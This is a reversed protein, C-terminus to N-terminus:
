LKGTIEYYLVKAHGGETLDFSHVKSYAHATLISNVEKELEPSHTEIVIKPSHKKIFETGGRLVDVEAGEVDIKLLVNDDKPVISSLSDLNIVDIEVEEYHSHTPTDSTIISNTVSEAIRLKAKGCTQMLGKPIVTLKSYGALNNKLTEVNKLEPEIAIINCNKKLYNLAFFGTNAGCDVLTTPGTPEFSPVLNYVKKLYIEDVLCIDPCRVWRKEVYLPVDRVLHLWILPLHLTYSITSIKSYSLFKFFFTGNRVIWNYIRSFTFPKTM